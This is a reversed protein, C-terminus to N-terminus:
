FGFCRNKECGSHLSQLRHLRKRFIPTEKVSLKLTFRSYMLPGRVEDWRAPNRLPFSGTFGLWHANGLIKRDFEHRWFFFM